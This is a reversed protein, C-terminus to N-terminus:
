SVGPEDAGPSGGPYTSARWNLSDSPNGAENILRLSDGRGDASVPWGYEDNYEVEILTEGAADVLTIKEGKNSLHGEYVGSVPVNPYHEAFATPNSVLVAFQGPGLPPTDPPFNFYVGEVVSVGALSLETKGTNKLEIFELDDGESPNYMIETLRLGNDQAVVSFSAQNLASWERGDWVRAKVVTNATLAVPSHYAVATPGVEGTVPMRPDSSDTTYYITAGPAPQPLSLTLTFGPEVLGGAHSFLPPDVKPYYGAGRAMVVLQEAAGAMRQAVEAQAQGWEEQTPVDPRANGWRALEAVIARALPQSQQRWRAQAQAPSLAGDNFLHRYMRDALQMKFDPNQLLVKLLAQEVGSVPTVEAGSSLATEAPESVAEDWVLFKGRGPSDQRQVAFRWNPRPWHMSEAYWNLIMFDSFQAPDLYSATTTYVQSLQDGGDFADNYSLVTFLYPLPDAASGEEHDLPGAQDALFWEEKEGGGYTSMFSTDPREVVNYVGWYLGNLYLHVFINHPSLGSMANQSARLWGERVDALSAARLLLSDFEKVPSDPFLPYDLKTPGYEHKFLLRFSPKATFDGRLKLGANIQFDQQSDPYIFELSVPQEWETEEDGPHSYLDAFSAPAMVVSLTPLSQLDDKLSDRYRPDNVVHPDMGYDAPAPAATTYGPATTLQAGWSHPFGPPNSPQALVDQLFLYSRTSSGSPLFGPKFAAARIVATSEVVVPETYLQGNTETPESGDATYRITAEPTSTTLRLKFQGEYFGREASFEVPAVTGAWVQPQDNPGGPTPRALFSYALNAGYRGYARDRFQPPYQPVLEDVFRDELVHYLGLFEGEQKLKFNTHLAAGTPGGQRNKGSAFVVLYQRGGLTFDPFTWKTPNDAADTLAWGALNIPSSSQNYLEIWDAHEGDEDTLGTENDAVFENIVLSASSGTEASTVLSERVSFFLSLLLILGFFRKKRTKTQTSM